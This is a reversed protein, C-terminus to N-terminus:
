IGLADKIRGFFGDDRESDSSEGAFSQELEQFLKRQHDTLKNPVVVRTVVVQDGRGNQRLFPVGKGRLRFTQNNQTGAPIKIRDTGDVTPVELEDGLAAQAVNLRLEMLIDNGDRVFYQHPQVELTVYLNGHPGGRPGAEGEGTIRIQSNGDVGAPVKVSITRSQRM